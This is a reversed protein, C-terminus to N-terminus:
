LGPLYPDHVEFAIDVTGDIGINYTLYLDFVSHCESLFVPYSISHDEQASIIVSCSKM